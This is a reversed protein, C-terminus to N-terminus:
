SKGLLILSMTLFLAGGVVGTAISGVLGSADIGLFAFVFYGLIGGIIGIAINLIFGFGGNGVLIGVFWGVLGGFGMIFEIDSINSIDM